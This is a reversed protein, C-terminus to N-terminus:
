RTTPYRAVHRMMFLTPATAWHIDDLVLVIPTENAIATLWAAVAEFLRYRSTEADADIPMPLGPLRQPADPM